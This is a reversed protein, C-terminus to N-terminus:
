SRCATRHQAGGRIGKMYPAMMGIGSPRGTRFFSVLGRVLPEVALLGLKSAAGLDGHVAHKTLVAVKGTEYTRLLQRAADGQPRSGYEHVVPSAPSVYVGVPPRARIARLHFEGEETSSVGYRSGPGISEDFLGIYDFVERRVAM